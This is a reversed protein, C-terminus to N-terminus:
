KSLQNITFILTATSALVGLISAFTNFGQTGIGFSKVALPKVNIIDNPQLYFYPSSLIDKNTLDLDVALIGDPLQRVIQVNKRDGVLVIDGAEALAEFINIQNRYVVFRGPSKVDGVVSFQIGSLQVSVFIESTDMFFQSLGSKVMEKIEPLTKNIVTLKGMVPLDVTGDHGVSYGNIYFTIDGQGPNLAMNEDTNFYKSVEEDTSKIRINLIDNIQVKYLSVQQQHFVSDNKQSTELNQLYTLRKQPICSSLSFFVLLVLTLKKLWIKLKIM